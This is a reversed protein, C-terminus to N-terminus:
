RGAFVGALVLVDVKRAGAMKLARACASLTAGTTMVDDVLVFDRDRVRRQNDGIVAFAGSVNRERAEVSSQDQQPPTARIRTILNPEYVCPFLLASKEALVAAQNYRRSFLRRHHLPVPTMITDSGMLDRGVGVMWKAFLPALDIRDNHKFRNILPRSVDDFRIASRARDFPRPSAICAACIVGAGYDLAFPLGCRACTPDTIFNIQSWGSGSLVNPESVLEGTVPCTPPIFIDLAARGLHVLRKAIATSSPTM